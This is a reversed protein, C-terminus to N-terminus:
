RRAEKEREPPSLVEGASRDTRRRDTHPRAPGGRTFKEVIFDPRGKVEEYIKAIYAGVIGLGIMLIAGIIIQLLIVTTIGPAAEGALWLWLTRAGLVVGLVAFFAGLLTVLHMPLTSFSLISGIALKFLRSSSWKGAGTARPSVDFLITRQEFGIWAVLGRFFRQREPLHLLCDVVERDLLKFDAANGVDMGALRSFLSFYRKTLWAKLLGESQRSRKVTNVVKAGGEWLRLMEPILGPPHQLDADMVIVADGRAAELGAHLAGEKGFNRSLRLGVVAPDKEALTEIVQWTADSSGDDVILYEVPGHPGAKERIADVADALGSAEHYAPVVISLRPHATVLRDGRARTKSM